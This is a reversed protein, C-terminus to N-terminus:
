LFFNSQAFKMSSTRKQGTETIQGWIQKKSFGRQNSIFM